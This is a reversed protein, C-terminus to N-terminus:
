FERVIEAYIFRVIKLSKSNVKPSAAGELNETM